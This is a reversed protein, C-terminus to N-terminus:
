HPRGYRHLLHDQVYGRQRFDRQGSCQLGGLHGRERRRGSHTHDGVAPPRREPDVTVDVSDGEDASYTSAGFSATVAPDDDIFTITMENNAGTSVGPPLDSGFALKIGEGREVLTDQYVQINIRKAPDNADFEINYTSPAGHDGSGAGGQNTVIVSITFPRQPTLSLTLFVVGTEGEIVELTAAPFNVTVAPDDDIITVTTTRNTSARTVGPPLSAGFTIDLEKGHDATTNETTTISFTASTDGSNFSINEPVNYDADAATTSGGSAASIPITLPRMPDASLTVTVEVDDGEGVSYTAAGFGVTVAPDDDIITVTATANTGVTVGRPCTPGM